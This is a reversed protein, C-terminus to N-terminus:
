TLGAKCWMTYIEPGIMNMWNSVSIQFREFSVNENVLKVGRPPRKRTKKLFRFFLATCKTAPECGLIVITTHKRACAVAQARLIM